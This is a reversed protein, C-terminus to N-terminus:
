KKTEKFIKKMMNKTVIQYDTRFGFAEHLADTFDTRTYIPQYGEGEIEKFDFSFGHIPKEKANVVDPALAGFPHAISVVMRRTLARGWLSQVSNPQDSYKSFVQDPETETLPFVIMHGDQDFIGDKWESCLEAGPITAFSQDTENSCEELYQNIGREVQRGDIMEKVSRNISRYHDAVVIGHYGLSKAVEVREKVTKIGDSYTTHIHITFKRMQVQNLESPTYAFGWKTVEFRGGAQVKSDPDIELSLSDRKVLSPDFEICFGYPKDAEPIVLEAVKSIKKGDGVSLTFTLPVASKAQFFFWTRKVNDPLFQKGNIGEMGSGTGAPLDSFASGGLLIKSGREQWAGALGAICALLLITLTWIRM